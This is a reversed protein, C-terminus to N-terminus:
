LIIMVRTLFFATEMDANWNDKWARSLRNCLAKRQYTDKTSIQILLIEISVKSPRGIYPGIKKYWNKEEWEFDEFYNFIAPKKLKSLIIM